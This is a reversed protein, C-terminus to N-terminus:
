SVIRFISLGLFASLNPSKISSKLAKINLRGASLQLSALTYREVALNKQTTM